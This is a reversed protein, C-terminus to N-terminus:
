GMQVVIVAIAVLVQPDAFACDIPTFGHCQQAASRM